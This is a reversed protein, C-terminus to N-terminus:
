AKQTLMKPADFTDWMEARYPMDQLKLHLLGRGLFVRGLSAITTAPFNFAVREITGL